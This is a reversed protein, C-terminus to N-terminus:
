LLNSCNLATQFLKYCNPVSLAIHTIPHIPSTIGSCSSQLIVASRHQYFWDLNFWDLYFWGLDFWGLIFWYLNFWGASEPSSQSNKPKSKAGLASFRKLKRCPPQHQHDITMTTSTSSVPFNESVNQDSSKKRLHFSEVTFVICCHLFYCVPFKAIPDRCHAFHKGDCSQWKQTDQYYEYEFHSVNARTLFLNRQNQEFNARQIRQIGM